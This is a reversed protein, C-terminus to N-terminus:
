RDTSIRFKLASGRPEAARKLFAFIKLIFHFHQLIDANVAQRALFADFITNDDLFYASKFTQARYSTPFNDFDDNFSKLSYCISM